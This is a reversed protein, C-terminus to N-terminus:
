KVFQPRIDFEKTDLLPISGEPLDSYASMWQSVWGPDTVKSPHYGPLLSRVM